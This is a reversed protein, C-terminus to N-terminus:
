GVHEPTVAHASEIIWKAVVPVQRGELPADLRSLHLARHLLLKATRDAVLFFALLFCARLSLRCPDGPPVPTSGDPYLYRRLPRRAAEGMRQRADAARPDLDAFGPGSFCCVGLLLLGVSCAPLKAIPTGDSRWGWVSTIAGPGVARM